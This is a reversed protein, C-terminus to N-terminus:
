GSIQPVKAAWIDIRNDCHNYRPCARVWAAMWGDMGGHPARRVRHAAGPHSSPSRSKTPKM